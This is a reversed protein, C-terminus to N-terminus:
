QNIVEEYKEVIPDPSTIEWIPNDYIRLSPTAAIEEETFGMEAAVVRLDFSNNQKFQSTTSTKTDKYYRHLHLDSSSVTNLCYRNNIETSSITDLCYRNNIETSQMLLKCFRNNINDTHFVRLIKYFPKYLTKALIRYFPKGIMKNIDSM